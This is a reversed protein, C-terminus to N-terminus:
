FLHMIRKNIFLSHLICGVFNFIVVLMLQLLLLPLDSYVITSASYYFTDLICHNCDVVIFAFICLLSIIRNSNDKDYCTVATTMLFGTIISKIIVGLYSEELRTKIISDALQSADQISFRVLLGFIFATFLNLGLVLILRRFDKSDTIFGSKSNFSNFGLLIVSLLCVSVLASSLIQNTCILTLFGGISVLIGGLISKSICHEIQIM